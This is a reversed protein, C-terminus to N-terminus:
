GLCAGISPRHAASTAAAAAGTEPRVSREDVRESRREAMLYTTRLVWDVIDADADRETKM